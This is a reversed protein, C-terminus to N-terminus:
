AGHKAKTFNIGKQLVLQEDVPQDEDAGRDNKSVDVEVVDTRQVGLRNVIVQGFEHSSQFRIDHDIHLCKDVIM